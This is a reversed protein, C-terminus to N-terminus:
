KRELNQGISYTADGGGLFIPEYLDYSIQTGSNRDKVILNRTIITM